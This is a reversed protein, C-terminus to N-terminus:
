LIICHLIKMNKAVTSVDVYIGETDLVKLTLKFQSMGFIDWQTIQM